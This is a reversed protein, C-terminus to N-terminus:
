KKQGRRKALILFGIFLTPVILFVSIFPINLGTKEQIEYVEALERDIIFEYNGNEEQFVDGTLLGQLKKDEAIENAPIIVKQTKSSNNIAVIVSDEQYSRKFIIMGDKEYLLQYDGKTLPPFNNRVKALKGMYDILEEDSQFNMLPRNLPPEGGDVAIESGYYVFPTGPLTYMYSYAIKFRNGPHQNNEISYRTFRVTNHSDLFNTLNEPAEEVVSSAPEINNDVNAFALSAAEQFPANLISDFGAEIYRTAKSDDYEQLTGVLYNDVLGENFDKWFDASIVDPYNIFYGDIDVDTIWSAGSDILQAQDEATFPSGTNLDLELLVNIDLKHSQSVLNQLEEKTGYHEDINQAINNGEQLFISSLVITSFGMKKIYELKRVIGEFDGGHYALPDEPNFEAGDNQPDGNNFRDVEIFYVLENQWAEELTGEANVHISSNFLLFSIALLKIVNKYM